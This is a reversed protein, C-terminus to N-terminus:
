FFGRCEAESQVICIINHYLCLISEFLLIRYLKFCCKKGLWNGKVTIITSYWTVNQKPHRYFLTNLCQCKGTCCDSTIKLFYRLFIFFFFGPCCVPGINFDCPRVTKSLFTSFHLAVLFATLHLIVTEEWWSYSSSREPAYNSKKLRFWRQVNMLGPLSVASLSLTAVHSHVRNINQWKLEWDCDLMILLNPWLSFKVKVFCKWVQSHAWM